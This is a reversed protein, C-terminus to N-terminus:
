LLYYDNGEEDEREGSTASASEKQQNEGPLLFSASRDADKDKAM